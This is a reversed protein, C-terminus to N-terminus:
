RATHPWWNPSIHLSKEKGPSSNSDWLILRPLSIPSFAGKTQHGTKHKWLTRVPNLSTNPCTHYGLYSLTPYVLSSQLSLGELPAHDPIISKLHALLDVSTLIVSCVRTWASPNSVSHPCLVLINWGHWGEKSKKVIGLAKRSWMKSMHNGSRSCEKGSDKCPPTNQLSKPKPKKTVKRTIGEITLTWQNQRGLLWVLKPPLLM